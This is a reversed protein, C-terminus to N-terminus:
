SNFINRQKGNIDDLSDRQRIVYAQQQYVMVEAPFGHSLFYVPSATPGYAGSQHIGILDGVQTKPLNISKAILDNPTCLPGTIDYQQTVTQQGSLNDIPFNRKVVGGIGVAAMHCHSGGDTILFTKGKSQKIDHVTTIFCGSEAVLYRGSEMIIRTNPYQTVYSQIIEQFATGSLNIPQENDFYAVGIGGGIDICEFQLDFTNQLESAMTLIHQTNDIVTNINLIRTGNYVHIGILNIHSLSTFQNFQAFVDTQDIGFQSPKGGMKLLADKSIFDPNIRVIVNATVDLQKALQNIRNLEAFSEFVVAYIGNQLCNIIDRDHKYPGVFIINHGPMGIRLVTDLEAASCVETAAGCDVLLKVISRNPNAKLSYFIDVHQGCFHTLRGYALTIHDADYVYVPTGCGDVIEKIPIGQIHDLTATNNM